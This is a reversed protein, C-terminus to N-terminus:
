TASPTSCCQEELNAIRAVKFMFEPANYSPQACCRAVVRVAISVGKGSESELEGYLKVPKSCETCLSEIIPTFTTM